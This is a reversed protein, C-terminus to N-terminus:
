AGARANGVAETARRCVVSCHGCQACRSTPRQRRGASRSIPRTFVKSWARRPETLPCGAGDFQAAGVEAGSCGEVLIIWDAIADPGGAGERPHADPQGCSQRPRLRTALDKRVHASLYSLQYGSWAEGGISGNASTGSVMAARTAAAAGLTRNM